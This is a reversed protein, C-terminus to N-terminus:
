IKPAEGLFGEVVARLLQNAIATRPPLRLGGEVYGEEAPEGLGSTGVELAHRVEEFSVWKADHLEPDHELHIKEGEPLAQAIAGIMLNAPYPWPQTSHIVVRGVQVGAEEWVERRVAEEVSEAPECFGALTSYLHDPWRKQRGLLISKADHSVVAMIVTPDTRPFSLNSVGKRTVCDKRARPTDLVTTAGQANPLSSLDTTPCVRKTGAHVSLTPQGCGGCFPNRTNWDIMARAHAYIAAEPANLTMHMRGEVFTNGKKTVEEIVGKAEKEVTGRPTVDVAFFPRGKYIGFEFGDRKKEDLGLFLVLPLTTASNYGKLMEEETKEFPNEGILPRVDKHTVFALQTPDKALPALDKLLLFSTSPHTLAKTVFEQNARLFSVRNLPSGSFYNAVERGFKRSLMSEVNSHAPDPLSPQPPM